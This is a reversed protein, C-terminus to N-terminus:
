IKFALRYRMVSSMLRRRASKWISVSSPVASMGPFVYPRFVFKSVVVFEDAGMHTVVIRRLRSNNM